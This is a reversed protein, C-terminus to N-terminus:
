NVLIPFELPCVLPNGSRGTRIEPASLRLHRISRGAKLAAVGVPNVTAASDHLVNALTRCENRSAECPLARDCDFVGCHRGKFMGYFSTSAAVTMDWKSRNTM